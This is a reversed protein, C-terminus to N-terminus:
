GGTTSMSRKANPTGAEQRAEFDHGEPKAAIAARIAKDLEGDDSHAQMVARLDVHTERGLCQYLRGRCTVRIRNCGECFNGSM